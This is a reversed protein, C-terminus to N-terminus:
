KYESSFNDILNNDNGEDESDFGNCQKYSEACEGNDCRVTGPPCGKDEDFGILLIKQKFTCYM